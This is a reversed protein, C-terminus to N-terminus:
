HARLRRYRALVNRVYAQTEPYPPIGGYREVANPGANYAAVALKLDGFRDLLSRLYRTGGSVNQEPDYPDAVGLSAATGPMLQMLGRAGARSTANPDFGS